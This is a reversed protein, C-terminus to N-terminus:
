MFILFVIYKLIGYLSHFYLCSIPFINANMVSLHSISGSLLSHKPNLIITFFIFNFYAFVMFLCYVCVCLVHKTVM